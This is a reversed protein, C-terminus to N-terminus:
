LLVDTLEAQKPTSFQARVATQFSRWEDQVTHDVGRACPANSIRQVCLAAFDQPSEVRFYGSSASAPNAAVNHISSYSEVVALHVDTRQVASEDRQIRSRAFRNPSGNGNVLGLRICNGASWANGLSVNEDPIC